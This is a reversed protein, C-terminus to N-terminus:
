KLAIPITIPATFVTLCLWARLAAKQSNSLQKAGSKFFLPSIKISVPITAENLVAQIIELTTNENQGPSANFNAPFISINLELADAGAEQLYKTFYPWNHATVCNISAIVPIQLHKKADYIM